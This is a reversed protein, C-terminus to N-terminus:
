QKYLLAYRKKVKLLFYKVDEGEYYHMETMNDEGCDFLMFPEETFDRLVTRVFHDAELGDLQELQECFQQRKQQQEIASMGPFLEQLEKHYTLVMEGSASEILSQAQMSALIRFTCLLSNMYEANLSTELQEIVPKANLM